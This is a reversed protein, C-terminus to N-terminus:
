LVYLIGESSKGSGTDINGDGLEVDLTSTTVSVNFYDLSAQSYGLANADGDPTDGILVRQTRRLM